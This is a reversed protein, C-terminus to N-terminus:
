QARENMSRVHMCGPHTCNDCPPPEPLGTLARIARRLRILEEVVADIHPDDYGDPLGLIVQDPIRGMDYGCDDDEWADWPDSRDYLYTM